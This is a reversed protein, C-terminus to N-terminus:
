INLGLKKLASDFKKPNNKDYQVAVIGLRGAEECNIQRDDVFLCEEPALDEGLYDKRMEKANELAIEFIQKEPKVFGIKFSLIYDDCHKIVEYKDYIHAFHIDGLNSVVSVTHKDQLNELINMYHPIPEFLSCWVEKFKQYDLTLSSRRMIEEYLDMGKLIGRDCKLALEPFKDLTFEEKVCFLNIFYEADKKSYKALDECLKKGNCHLIVDGIDTFVHKIM